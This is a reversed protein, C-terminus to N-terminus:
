FFLMSVIMEINNLIVLAVALFLFMFLSSNRAARFLEQDAIQGPHSKALVILKIQSIIVGLGLLVMAVTIINTTMCDEKTKYLTV